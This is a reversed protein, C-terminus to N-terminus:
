KLSRVYETLVRMNRVFVDTTSWLYFLRPSGHTQRSM